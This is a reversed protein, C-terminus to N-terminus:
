NFLGVIARKLNDEELLDSYSLLYVEKDKVVMVKHRNETLNYIRVDFEEYGFIEEVYNEFDPNYKVNDLYREREEKLVKEVVWDKLWDNAMHLGEIHISISDNNEDEKISEDYEYSLPVFISSDIHWRELNSKGLIGMEELTVRNTEIKISEDNSGDMFGSGVFTFIFASGIGVSLAWVFVLISIKVALHYSKKQIFKKFLWVFIFILVIPLISVIFISIPINSYPDYLIAGIILLLYLTVVVSQIRYKNKVWKASYYFLPEGNHLKKGNIIVWWLSPITFMWIILTLVYPSILNFIGLNSTIVDYKINHFNFFAQIIYILPIFMVIFESKFFLKKVTKYVDEDDTYIPPGDIEDLRYYIRYVQNESALQWGASKCFEDYTSSEEKDPWDLMTKPTLLAVNFTLAQPEIKRFTMGFGMKELLWGKLAMEEFYHELSKYEVISANKFVRKKDKSM